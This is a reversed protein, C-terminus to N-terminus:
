KVRRLRIDVLGMDIVATDKDRLQVIFANGSSGEPIIKIIDGDIEYRAAIENSGDIVGRSTFEFHVVGSDDRWKGILPNSSFSFWQKLTALFGATEQSSKSESRNQRQAKQLRVGAQPDVQWKGDVLAVPLNLTFSERNSLNLLEKRVPSKSLWNAEDELMVTARALAASEQGYTQVKDFGNVNKVRMSKSLCLKNNRVAQRGDETLNYVYQTQPFYGGSRETQAPTYLGSTALADMWNRASRDYESFRLTDQQYRVNSLCVHSEIVDPNAALYRDIARSFSAESATEPTLWYVVSGGALIIAVGVTAVFALRRRNLRYPASTSRRGLITPTVVQNIPTGCAECFRAADLNATGCQTCFRTM